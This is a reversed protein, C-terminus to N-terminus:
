AGGGGPGGDAGPAAGAEGAFGAAGDKGPAVEGEGDGAGDNDGGGEPFGHAGRDDRAGAGADVLDPAGDALVVVVGVGAGADEHGAEGELRNSGMGEAADAGAAVVLPGVLLEGGIADVRGPDADVVVGVVGEEVGAGGGADGAHEQEGADGGEGEDAAEAGVAARAGGLGVRGAAVAGAGGEGHEAEDEDAGEVDDLDVGLGGGDEPDDH